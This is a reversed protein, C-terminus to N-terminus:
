LACAPRKFMVTWKRVRTSSPTNPKAGALIPSEESEDPTSPPLRLVAFVCLCLSVFPPITKNTGGKTKTGLTIKRAFVGLVALVYLLCEGSLRHEGNLVRAQEALDALLAPLELERALM